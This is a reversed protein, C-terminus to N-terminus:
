EAGTISRAIEGRERHYTIGAMRARAVYANSVTYADRSAVAPLQEWTMGGIDQSKHHHMHGTFLYRFRTKGWLTWFEDAVFHVIRDAKARHGHHAAILVKGFQKVFFESPDRQVIVRPEERYREAVAMMVAVAAHPDHNGPLFRVTVSEHKTLAMDVTQAAAQITTELMKFYRTDTDLRHKSAPTESRGDDAHLLDGAFLLVCRHSPQLASLTRGVWAVLREAGKRTDWDEGTERGWAMLGLHADAIPILTLLDESPTADLHVAPAPPVDALIARLRDAYDEPAIQPPRWYTTALKKGNEDYTHLWGGGAETSSLEAREVVKRIGQSLHLGQRQAEALRSRFTNYNLNLATAAKTVSRGQALWEEVAERLLSADLRPTPM